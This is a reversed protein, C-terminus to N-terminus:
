NFTILQYNKTYLNKLFNILSSKLEDPSNEEFIIEENCGLHHHKSPLHIYDNLNIKKREKRINKFWLM